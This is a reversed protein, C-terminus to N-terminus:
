VDTSAFVSVSVTLKAPLVPKVIVVFAPVSVIVNVLLPTVLAATLPVPKVISREVPATVILLSAVEFLSAPVITARSALPM